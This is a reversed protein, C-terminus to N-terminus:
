SIERKRGNVIPRHEEILRQSYGGRHPVNAGDLLAMIAAHDYTLGFADALSRAAREGVRELINALVENATQPEPEASVVEIEQREVVLGALRAKESIARVSASLQGLSDARQRAHELEDLLGELTIKAGAASAQQIEFVRARITEFSKLRAANHRNDRYGSLSYAERASKGEALLQAFKEHRQNPLVPM